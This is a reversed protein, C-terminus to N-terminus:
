FEFGNAFIRDPREIPQCPSYESVVIGAGSAATRRALATVFGEGRQVFVTEDFDLNGQADTPHGPSSLLFRAGEGYGYPHCRTNAYFQLDIQSNPTTNLTGQVRLRGVAADIITASTVLPYNQRDNPGSDADAPDNPNPGPPALDIGLGGNDVISADLISVAATEDVYVGAGSNRTVGVPLGYLDYGGVLSVLGDGRVYVGDNANSVIANDRLATTEPLGLSAASDIRMGYGSYGILNDRILTTRATRSMEIGSLRNGLPASGPVFGLYNNRVSNGGAPYLADGGETDIRIGYDNGSILNRNAPDTVNASPPDGVVNGIANTGLLIGSGNGRAQLGSADTGIFRGRIAVDSVFCGTQNSDCRRGELQIGSGAFGNVVLGRILSNSASAAIGNAGIM